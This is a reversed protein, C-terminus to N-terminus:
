EKENNNSDKLINKSAINKYCERNKSLLFLIFTPKFAINTKIGDYMGTKDDYYDLVYLDCSNLLLEHEQKNQSYDYIELGESGKPVLIKLCVNYSDRAFSAMFTLSTSLYGNEEIKTGILDAYDNCFNKNKKIMSHAVGRYVITNYPVCNQLAVDLDKITEQYNFFNKIKMFFTYFPNKFVDFMKHEKLYNQLKKLSNESFPNLDEIFSITDCIQPDELKLNCNRGAVILDILLDDSIHKVYEHFNGNKRKVSLIEANEGGTYLSLSQAQGLTINSRRLAKYIPSIEQKLHPRTEIYEKRKEIQYPVHDLFYSFNKRDFLKKRDHDNFTRYSSLMSDIQADSFNESILIKRIKELYQKKIFKEQVKNTKRM